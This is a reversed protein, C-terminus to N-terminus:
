YFWFARVRIVDCRGSAGYDTGPSLDLRGIQFTWLFPNAKREDMNVNKHLVSIKALCSHLLLFSFSFYFHASVSIPCSSSLLFVCLSISTPLSFLTSFLLLICPCPISLLITLFLSLFLFFACLPLFSFSTSYYPSASTWECFQQSWNLGFFFIAGFSISFFFHPAIVNPRVSMQGISQIATAM